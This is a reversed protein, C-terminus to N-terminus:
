QAFTNGNIIWDKLNPYIYKEFNKSGISYYVQTMQKLYETIYVKNDAQSCIKFAKIAFGQAYNTNDSLSKEM